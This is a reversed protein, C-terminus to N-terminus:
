EGRLDSRAFGEILPLGVGSGPAPEPAAAPLPGEVWELSLAAGGPGPHASWRVVVRGVPLALAGHKLSNTLLEQVTVAMASAETTTLPIAPGDCEVAIRRAAPILADCVREILVRLDVPGGGAHNIIDHVEKMALIKGRLAHALQAAPRGSREYLAVLGALSALNNRVRHDLERRLAAERRLTRERDDLARLIQSEAGARRIMERRSKVLLWLTWIGPILSLPITAILALRLRADFSQPHRLLLIAIDGNAVLTALIPATFLAWRPIPTPAGPPTTPPNNPMLM